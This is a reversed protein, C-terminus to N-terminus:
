NGARHPFLAEYIKLLTKENNVFLDLLNCKDRITFDGLKVRNKALQALRLLSEEFERAEDTNRDMQQFKKKNYIENKLRRKMIDKRVEEICDVFLGELENKETNENVKDATVRRARTKEREAASKLERITEMYNTELAQVYKGIEDRVDDRSMKSKFVLDLFKGFKLNETPMPLRYRSNPSRETRHHAGATQSKGAPRKISSFNNVDFVSNPATTTTNEVMSRQGGNFMFDGPLQNSNETLFVKNKNDIETDGIEMKPENEKEELENQLRGIALKLLKNQRKADMIQQQLFNKEQEYGQAKTKWYKVSEHLKEKDKEQRIQDERIAAITNELKSIKEDKLTNNSNKENLKEILERLDKEKQKVYINYGKLYEYEQKALVRNLKKDLDQITDELQGSVRQVETWHGGKDNEQDLAGGTPNSVVSPLNTLRLGGPTLMSSIQHRLEKEAKTGSKTSSHPSDNNM